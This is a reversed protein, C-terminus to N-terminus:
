LAKHETTTWQTAEHEFAPKCSQSQQCSRSSSITAVIYKSTETRLWGPADKLANIALCTQSMTLPIRGIQERMSHCHQGFHASREQHGGISAGTECVYCSGVVFHQILQLTVVIRALTRDGCCCLGMNQQNERSHAAPRGIGKVWRRGTRIRTSSEMLRQKNKLYRPCYTDTEKILHSECPHITAVCSYPQQSVQSCFSADRCRSYYWKDGGEVNNTYSRPRHQYSQKPL